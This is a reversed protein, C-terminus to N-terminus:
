RTKKAAVHWDFYLQNRSSGHVPKYPLDPWWGVSPNPVNVKDVDTVAFLEAPSGYQCIQTQKLPFQQPSPYGFPPTAVGPNPDVDSNLLYCIRGVMDNISSLSPASRVYGPCVGVPVVQPEESPRLAGLYSWLYYMVEESSNEDFSPSMGVWVPGPLKDGNDEGYMQVAQGLQKLNSICGTQTAKQKARALAPLLMAALIAIVAIVVLLEILTFARARSTGRMLLRSM